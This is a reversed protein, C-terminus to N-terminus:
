FLTPYLEETVCFIFPMNDRSVIVLDSGDQNFFDHLAKFRKDEKTIESHGTVGLLKAQFTDQLMMYCFGEIHIVDAKALLKYWAQSNRKVKSEIKLTKGNIVVRLDGALADEAAGILHCAKLVGSMPVRKCEYGWSQMLKEINKEALRGRRKNNKGRKSADTQKRLKRQLKRELLLKEQAPSRIKPNEPQYDRYDDCSFCDYRHLCNDKVSCDLIRGRGDTGTRLRM